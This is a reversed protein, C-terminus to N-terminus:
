SADQAIEEILWIDMTDDAAPKDSARKWYGQGLDELECTREERQRILELGEEVTEVMGLTWHQLVEEIGEETGDTVVILAMVEFKGWEKTVTSYESLVRFAREAMELTPYSETRTGHPDTIKLTYAM